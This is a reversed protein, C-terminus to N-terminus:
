QELDEMREKHVDGISITLGGLTTVLCRDRAIRVLYGSFGTLPGSVIKMMRHGEAYYEVVHPMVRLRQADMRAVRMFLQMEEDRIVAVRGTSRDKSLYVGGFRENLFEQVDDAEGCVFILGSITPREKHTLRGGERKHVITTHIFTMYKEQLTQNVVSMKGRSVFLYTWTLGGGGVACLEGESWVGDRQGDCLKGDMAGVFTETSDLSM